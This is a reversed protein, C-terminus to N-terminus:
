SLPLGPTSCKTYALEDDTYPLLLFIGYATSSLTSLGTDKYKVFVFSGTVTKEMERIQNLRFEKLSVDYYDNINDIGIIRM